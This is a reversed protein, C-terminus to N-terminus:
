SQGNLVKLLTDTTYISALGIPQPSGPMYIATYPIGDSKLETLLPWGVADHDTLDAKLTVVGLRKLADITRKDRYVTAEVTKCNLCWNATFDVLVIKNQARAQDLAEASYPEWQVREIAEASTAPFADTLHLVLALGGAMVAVALGTSLYLPGASKSITPTRVVMYLCGWAVVSYVLWWQNPEGLLEVGVFFASSGLMLFGMLQKVLEAFAGTRPFRRAVEPMASLVLYPSAMGAGVTTVLFFGTLVPLTLAYGLVPPFLPATCPTSLVATLMGWLFNGSLTDHRFDLGYISTPLRASFAGLMGFGLLGLVVAVTWVFWPYSFQEGWSIQRHFLLKSLLVVMGLGAFVTILGISFVFGLLLSRARSHQSAEYFGVAKVPLVPLVCPVINFIIGALFAICVALFISSHSLDISHGFFSVTTQGSGVNMAAQAPPSTSAAPQTAAPSPQTAAPQTAAPANAFLDANAPTVAQDAPVITTDVSFKPQEPPFCSNSNCAQFMLQGSLTIPGTPADGKVQVPVYFIVRGTYVSLQGLAPYNEIEPAPYVPSGFILASNADTTLEFAILTPDLPTHSQAHLGEHVDVVVALMASKGQALASVNLAASVDASSRAARAIPNISLLLAIGSVFITPMRM